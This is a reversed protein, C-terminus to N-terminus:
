LKMDKIFSLQNLVFVLPLNTIDDYKTIDGEALKYLVNEWGWHQMVKEEEIAEKEDPEFNDENYDEDEDIEPQFITEYTTMINQKFDSFLKLLGYVNSISLENFLEKRVEIDYRGYPEYIVNDWEDYKSKRYLIACIKNLNEFKDEAFLYDIDIFEGFSLKNIDICEMGELFRSYNNTPETSVWKLGSIVNNLDTVDVDDWFEDDPLTDTLIALIEIYKEYFGLEKGNIKVLEIFQDLYVEDWNTPVKNLLSM